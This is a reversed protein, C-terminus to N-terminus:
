GFEPQGTRGNTRGQGQGAGSKGSAGAQVAQASGELLLTAFGGVKGELPKGEKAGHVEGVVGRVRELVGKCEELSAKRGKKKAAFVVEVKRGEALFERVKGLRHGLDNGDIAWNLELTKMSGEKAKVGSSAQKAAVKKKKEQEYSDKKSVIKCIAPSLKDEPDEPEAVQVLRHTKRDLSNLVDYRTRPPLTESTEASTPLQNTTPDVVYILQARIEEDWPHKRKEPPRTKTLRSTTTSSFTRHTRPVPKPLNTTRPGLTKLRLTQPVIFVTYLAQATSRACKTHISAMTPTQHLSIRPLYYPIDDPGRHLLDCHWSALTHSYVPITVVGVVESVRCHQHM